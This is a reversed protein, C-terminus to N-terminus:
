MNSTETTIVDNGFRIVLVGATADGDIMLETQWSKEAKGCAQSSDQNWPSRRNAKEPANADRRQRCHVNLKGDYRAFSQSQGLKSTRAPRPSHPECHVD